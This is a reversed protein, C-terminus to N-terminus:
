TFIVRGVQDHQWLASYEQKGCLGKINDITENIRYNLDGLWFVYSFFFAILMKLM